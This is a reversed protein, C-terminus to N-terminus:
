LKRGRIFPEMIAPKFLEIIEPLNTFIGIIKNEKQLGILCKLSDVNLAFMKCDNFNTLQFRSKLDRVLPNGFPDSISGAINVVINSPLQQVVELLNYKTLDQISPVIIRVTNKGQLIGNKMYELIGELNFLVGTNETGSTKETLKKEAEILKATIENLKDSAGQGKNALSKELESIKGELGKIKTENDSEKSKLKSELDKVKEVEIKLKKEIEESGKAGKLLKDIEMTKSLLDSNSKKYKDRFDALATEKQQLELEKETIKQIIENKAELIESKGQLLKEKDNSLDEVKKEKQELKQELNNIQTESNKRDKELFNIRDNLIDINKKNAELYKMEAQLSRIEGSYMIEKNKLDDRESTLDKLQAILDSIKENAEQLKLEDELSM